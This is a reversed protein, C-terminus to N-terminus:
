KKRKGDISNNSLSEGIKHESFMEQLQQETTKLCSHNLTDVIYQDEGHKILIEDIVERPENPNNIIEGIYRHELEGNFYNNRNLFSFMYIFEQGAIKKNRMDTIFLSLRDMSNDFGNEKAQSMFQDAYDKANKTYGFFQNINEIKAKYFERDGLIVNINSLPFGMKANTLDSLRNENINITMPEFEIIGNETVMGVGLHDSFEYEENEKSDLVVGYIKNDDLMDVAKTFIRAFDWCVIPTEPTINELRNKNFSREMRRYLYNVDYSFLKCMKAYIFLGKEELPLDEPMDQFLYDSIEHNLNWEGEDGSFYLTDYRSSKLKWIKLIGEKVKENAAM